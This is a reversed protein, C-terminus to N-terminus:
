EVRRHTLAEGVDQIDAAPGHGLRRQVHVGTVIVVVSNVVRAEELEKGLFRLVNSVQVDDRVAYRLQCQGRTDHGLVAEQGRGQDM